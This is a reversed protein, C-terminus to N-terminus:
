WFCWKEQAIGHTENQTLKYHATYDQHLAFESAAHLRQPQTCQSTTTGSYKTAVSAYAQVMAPPYRVGMYQSYLYTGRSLTRNKLNGTRFYPIM